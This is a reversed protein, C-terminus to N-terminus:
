DFSTRQLKVIGIVQRIRLHAMEKREAAQQENLEKCEYEIEARFCRLNIQLQMFHIQDEDSPTYTWGPLFKVNSTM